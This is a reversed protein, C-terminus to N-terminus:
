YNKFVKQNEEFKWLQNCVDYCRTIWFKLKISQLDFSKYDSISQKNYASIHLNAQKMADSLTEVKVNIQRNNIADSERNTYAAASAM